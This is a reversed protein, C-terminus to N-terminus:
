PMGPASAPAPEPIAAKIEILEVEFILTSAPPIGPRGADGYALDAPVYLRIKGGESVKQLGQTWGPIVQNLQFSTPEGRPISSDFVTGDLLTGTYHVVVVDEPMPYAGTGQEIMEYRLGSALEIVNSNSALEEFFAQEAAKGIESQGAQISEARAALYEQVYPAITELNFRLEEGKAAVLLGRSVSAMEEDTLDLGELNIQQGLYWGWAEFIEDPSFRLEEEAAVTEAATEAAEATAEEAQLLFPFGLVLVSLTANQLMKM